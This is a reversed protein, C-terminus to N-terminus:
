ASRSELHTALRGALDEGYHIAVWRLSIAREDEEPFRERLARRSAQVAFRTLSALLAFRRSPTARRLLEIQVRHADPHTDRPPSAM